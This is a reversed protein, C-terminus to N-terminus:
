RNRSSFTCALRPRVCLRARTSMLHFASTSSMWNRASFSRLSTTHLIGDPRYGEVYNRIKDAALNATFADALASLRVAGQAQLAWLSKLHQLGRQGLGMLAVRVPQTM